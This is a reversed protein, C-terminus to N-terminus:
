CVGVRTPASLDAVRPPAIPRRGSPACVNACEAAFPSLRTARLCDLAGLAALLVAATLAVAHDPPVFGQTTM